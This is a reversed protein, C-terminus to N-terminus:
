AGVGKTKNGKNKRLSPLCIARIAPKTASIAVALKCSAEPMPIAINGGTTFIILLWVKM